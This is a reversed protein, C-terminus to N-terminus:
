ENSSWKIINNLNKLKEELRVDMEIKKEDRLNGYVELLEEIAGMMNSLHKVVDDRM